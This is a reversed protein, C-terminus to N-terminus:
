IHILSLAKLEEFVHKFIVNRLIFLHPESMQGINTKLFGVLEAFLNDQRATVDFNYSVRCLFRKNLLETVYEFCVRLRAIMSLIKVDIVQNELIATTNFYFIATDLLRSVNELIEM